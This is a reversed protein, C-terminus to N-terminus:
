LDDDPNEGETRLIYTPATRSRYLVSGVWLLTLQIRCVLYTGHIYNDQFLQSCSWSMRLPTLPTCRLGRARASSRFPVLLWEGPKKGSIPGTWTFLSFAFANRTGLTGATDTNKRFSYPHARYCVQRKFRLLHRHHNIRLHSREKKSPPWFLGLFRM